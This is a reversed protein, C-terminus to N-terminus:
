NFNASSEASKMRARGTAAAFLRATTRNELSLLRKVGVSDFLDFHMPAQRTTSALFCTIIYFGAVTSNLELVIDASLSIELPLAHM